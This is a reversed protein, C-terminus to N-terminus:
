RKPNLNRYSQLSGTYKEQTNDALGQDSNLAKSNQIPPGSSENAQGLDSPTVANGPFFSLIRPPTVFRGHDLASWGPARASVGLETIGLLEKCGVRWFVLLSFSQRSASSL